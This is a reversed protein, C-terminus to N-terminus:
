LFKSNHSARREQKKVTNEKTKKKTNMDPESGGKRV